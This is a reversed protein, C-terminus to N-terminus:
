RRLNSQRRNYREFTTGVALLRDDLEEDKAETAIAEILLGACRRYAWRLRALKAATCLALEHRPGSMWTKFLAAAIAIKSAAKSLENWTASAPEYDDPNDFEIAEGSEHVSGPFVTCLRNGRNLFGCVSQGLERAFSDM